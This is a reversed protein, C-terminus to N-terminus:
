SKKKKNTTKKKLPGYKKRAAKECTARKSKSKDKHCVKLAAKLKQARTLAKTKKCGTVAIKTVEHIEAGNQAIFETPMTLKESCLNGLGTLASFKGAPLTLEFTSFPQDPVTKFTTSTVGAKSIFTSGVLDITVGDGQLVMTLSPFAEGGHSVFIAPGTLPVSLLPTHVTAHGIESEPPCGAPNADFQKSTCAKQLTTLRSPLQKPLEVKVRALNAQTGLSGVPETVKATLSAGDAKSTHAGTSVQFKPTFKLAGCNTVQFPVGITDNSGESSRITGTVAMKNCSTPNFQFSPRTTIANIHQIELPIGEISTPIAYPSGPPDSTITLAATEPNIEVKGRVVVCDCPDESAPNASNRKLDFPGAKAPVEFTLGFPACGPQGVTCAGSGNYPGTLYIRGGSVSFPDGGVGVSVTSEGILSGQPCEGLDAQPEPCLEVGSLVGSLGPPLHAEASQMNQEGDNRSMTLTFPSFAGAQINTAGGTLSPSFPLQAGPCPDGNPGSIIQFSTQAQAPPNGSWPTFTADTTYTGCRAPTALPAREGGFFHLEADEFALQPTNEFTSEIQGTRQNLSVEGPLKVLSGSVPDEAVIYMAVLSGFPNANQAALYVTGELPNPLLPTKIKVTGIKSANPCFNLGPEFPESSGFSGPLKPTFHLESPPNSEGPLYGILGESCAELQNAGSPNISVGEPLTVEIDRINSNALGTANLQGEQPVHVDVTVGSPKSAQQGDPAVKIEPSFPLHNCGVLTGMPESPQYSSFSGPDAWSDGEVSTQMPEACSTPLSLFPSPNTEGLGLGHRPDGPVGWVTVTASIFGAEETIDRTSVTIGYDGGTRVSTDIYVPTGIGVLFGFRAPEGVNPELNFVKPVFELYPAVTPEDVTVMAVGVASDAPCEGDNAFEKDTCHPLVTPNGILGEPWKFDLDKTLVAEQPSFEELGGALKRLDTEHNPTITTTLQFPHAGAQTELSGDESEPKLEYNEVGFPTTADSVTVPRRLSVPPPGGGGTGGGGTVTVENEGSVADLPVEKMMIMVQLTRYPEITGSFTCSLSALTCTVTGTTGPFTKLESQSISTVSGKLAVPLRDAITVPNSTANVTEDGLNTITVFIAGEGGPVLNTPTATSEVHWWSATRTPLAASAPSVSICGLLLLAAALVMVGRAFVLTGRYFMM